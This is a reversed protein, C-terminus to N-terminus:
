AAGVHEEEMRKRLRTLLRSLLRSVQMQTVGVEAGIEAQTCGGFFRMELIRRERPTLGSMVSKLAVRAEASAFGPDVGGLRDGPGSEGEALPTDLSVPAFCGNAALSDLVLELDVGLHAAVESPRPSRGLSQYLEGEAATIKTQLEQVSRPPRITWGFDRFYRRIEGRITPVAFSLFDAGHSPDFGHVAKVLGLNAVQDLDDGPIGRNHYRRAIEGAVQMNIRIVEDHLATREQPSDTRSAEDLLRATEARRSARANNAASTAPSEATTTSDHSTAVHGM